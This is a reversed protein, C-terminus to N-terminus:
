EGGEHKHPITHPSAVETQYQTPRHWKQRANHPALRNKHPMTHPSVIKTHYQTPRRWKQRTNHPAISIPPAETRRLHQTRQQERTTTPTKLKKRKKDPDLDRPPANPIASPASRTSSIPDRTRGTRRLFHDTARQAASALRPGTRGDTGGDARGDM